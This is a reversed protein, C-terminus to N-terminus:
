SGGIKPCMTTPPSSRSRTALVAGPWGCTPWNPYISYFGEHTRTVVVPTRQPVVGLMVRRRTEELLSTDGLM